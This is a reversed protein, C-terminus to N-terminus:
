DAVLAEFIVLTPRHQAFRFTRVEQTCGFAEVKIGNRTEIEQQTWKYKDLGEGVRCVEPFDYMLKENSEFAQKINSMLSVAQRETASFLLIYNEKSYCISWVVYFFSVITSKAHGRPAAAALNRRRKDSMDILIGCIDNHFSCPESTMYDDGFYIKAFKLISEKGKKIRALKLADSARAKNMSM